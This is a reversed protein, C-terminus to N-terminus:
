GRVYRSFIAACICGLNLAAFLNSVVLLNVISAEAGSGSDLISNSGSATVTSVHMVGVEQANSLSAVETEARVESVFAPHLMALVVYLMIVPVKRFYRM